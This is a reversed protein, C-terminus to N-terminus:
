DKIGDFYARVKAKYIQRLPLVQRNLIEIGPFYEKAKLIQDQSTKNFNDLNTKASRTADDDQENVANELEMLKHQINSIRKLSEESFGKNLIEEELLELDKLVNRDRRDLSKNELVNKLRERLESQRKYIEFVKGNMEENEGGSRSAGEQRSEKIGEKFDKGLEEQEKIIDSLQVGGGGEGSSMHMNAQAEMNELINDLMYALENTHTMVYQQSSTGQPLQNQSLRELAKDINFQIDVIKDTIKENIMPNSLALSFLSDDIHKFHEKLLQQKRLEKAYAPNNIRIKKFGEM